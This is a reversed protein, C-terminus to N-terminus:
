SEVMVSTSKVVATAPAGRQLGLEEVADRTVIAVVRTPETILIEVQALLGEVKVEGVTGRFRNRASMQRTSDSGRLRAIEKASVVRRNGADRHTEIRGDKDWRRLTDLSIGLAQAAESASYVEKAV